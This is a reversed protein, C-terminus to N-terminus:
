NEGATIGHRNQKLLDKYLENVTRGLIPHYAYPAIENLPELVFLRNAMDEHPVILKENHIICEDYFIIDLDLTRPGWHIERVRGAEAEIRNLEKLLDPPSLRTLVLVCGNLFDDQEVGGYPKTSLIRSQKLLKIGPTDGLSKLGKEIYEERNGMNSGFAIYAKHWSRTISVAVTDLPLGIPAEPKDIRLEVSQILPSYELIYASLNEAVAEILNYRNNKMFCTIAECLAAYNVSDNLDDTKGPVSADIGIIASVYFNQGNIKEEEYVGHNCFVKLRSIIIKDM